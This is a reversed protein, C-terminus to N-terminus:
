KKLKYIGRDASRFKPEPKNKKKTFLATLFNKGAAAEPAASVNAVPSLLCIAVACLLLKKM